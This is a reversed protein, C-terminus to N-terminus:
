EVVKQMCLLGWRGHETAACLMVCEGDVDVHVLCRASDLVSGEVVRRHVCRVLM